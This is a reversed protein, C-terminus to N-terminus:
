NLHKDRYQEPIHPFWAKVNSLEEFPAIFKSKETGDKGIYVEKPPNYLHIPREYKRYCKVLERFDCKIGYMKFIFQNFGLIEKTEWIKIM